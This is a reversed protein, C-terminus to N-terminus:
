KLFLLLQLAVLKMLKLSIVLIMNSLQSAEVNWNNYEFADILWKMSMIYDPALNFIIKEGRLAREVRDLLYDDLAILIQYLRLIGYSKKNRSFKAGYQRYFSGKYPNLVKNKIWDNQAGIENKVESM